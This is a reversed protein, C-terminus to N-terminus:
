TLDAIKFTEKIKYGKPTLEITAAEIAIDHQFIIFSENDTIEALIKQKESISDMPYIDYASLYIPPLNTAVPMLDGAYVYSKSDSTIIPVLLGITHGRHMRVEIGPFLECDNDIINLKGFSNLPKIIHEPYAAEERINPNLAWEWQSRSVWMQANPFQLQPNGQADNILAGGCHDWHLHTFLIDTVDEPKFGHKHLSGLLTDNGNPHQHKLFDPSIRTGIGTDILIKRDGSVVLLNRTTINCFNNEDCPYRKHWIAKPIVGFMAGGDVKFRGCEISYLKM